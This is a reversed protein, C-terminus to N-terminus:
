RCLYIREAVDNSAQVMRNTKWYQDV